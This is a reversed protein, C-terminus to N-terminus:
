PIHEPGQDVHNEYFQTIAAQDYGDLFEIYDWAVLAVKKQMGRAYPSMVLKVENFTPEMPALNNVYNALQNKLTTCDTGSPCNYLIAVGGHELNHIYQGEQLPGITGWSVPGIGQANYHPGSSPPYSKYTATKSPDIHNQGEDPVKQGVPTTVQQFKLRSPSPRNLLLAVVLIAVALVALGGVVILLNRRDRARQRAAAEQRQAERMAKM